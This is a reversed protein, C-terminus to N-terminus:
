VESWDCENEKPAGRCPRHRIDSQRGFPRLSVDAAISKPGTGSFGSCAQTMGFSKRGRGMPAQPSKPESTQPSVLIASAKGGSCMIGSLTTKM